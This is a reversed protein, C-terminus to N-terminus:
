GEMNEWPWPSNDWVWPYATNADSNVFLPGYKKEYQEKVQNAEKRYNKFAEVMDKDNQYIDLYLNIDHAAFSLSDLYMLMEEQENKPELNIPSSIKYTNYLEKFMNGRIFGQYPDYLAKADVNNDTFTPQNYNNNVYNYYDLSNLYQNM